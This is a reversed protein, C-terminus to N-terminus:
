PEDVSTTEDSEDTGQGGSTQSDAAEGATEPALSIKTIWANAVFDADASSARGDVHSMAGLQAAVLEVVADSAVLYHRRRAERHQTLHAAMGSWLDASLVDAAEEDIQGAMWRARLGMDDVPLIEHIRDLIAAVMDNRGIGLPANEIVTRPARALLIREEDGLGEVVRRTENASPLALAFRSTGLDNDQSTAVISSDLIDGVARSSTAAWSRLSGESLASQGVLAILRRLTSVRGSLLHDYVLARIHDDAAQIYRRRLRRVRRWRAEWWVWLTCGVAVATIRSWVRANSELDDGVWPLRRSFLWAILQPLPAFAYALVLAMITILVARVLVSSSYPLWRAAKRLREFAEHLDTSGIDQESMRSLSDISEELGSRVGECWADVNPLNEQEGFLHRAAGEVQELLEGERRELNLDIQDLTVVLPSRPARRSTRPAVITDIVTSIYGAWLGPDLGELDVELQRLAVGPAAALSGSAPGTLLLHEESDVRQEGPRPPGVELDGIWQRGFEYGADRARAEILRRLETEVSRVAAVAHRDRRYAVSGIGVAWAEGRAGLKSSLDSCSIGHIIDALQADIEEAAHELAAGSSSTVVLAGALDDDLTAVLLSALFTRESASVQHGARLVIWLRDDILPYRDKLAGHLQAVHAGVSAALDRVRHEDSPDAPTGAAGSDQRIRADLDDVLHFVHVAENPAVRGLLSALPDVELTQADLQRLSDSARGRLASARAVVREFDGVEAVVIVPTLPKDSSRM